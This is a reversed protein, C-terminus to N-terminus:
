TSLTDESSSSSRTKNLTATLTKILDNHNKQISLLHDLRKRGVTTRNRRKNRKPTATTPTPVWLSAQVPRDNSTVSQSNTSGYVVSSTPTDVLRPDRRVPDTVEPKILTAEPSYLAYVPNDTLYAPSTPSDAIPEEKISTPFAM